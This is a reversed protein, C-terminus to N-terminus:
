SVHSKGEFHLIVRAQIVLPLPKPDAEYVVLYPRLM